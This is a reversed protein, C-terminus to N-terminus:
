SAMGAQAGARIVSLQDYLRLWDFAPGPDSKRGPAVDCHGAIARTDLAPYAAILAEVVRGLEVYQEDAYPSEDDGELEIGISFDNCCSRGRFSSRGAHWARRGFPVFQILGGDRRILLHASVHLDGIEEFYPHASRDICNTFFHEIHPGGFEGPPLSIGHIVILEPEVGEPRDDQNPSPCQVAPRILGAGPSVTYRTEDIEPM